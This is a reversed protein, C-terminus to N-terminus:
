VRGKGEEEFSVTKRTEKRGTSASRSRDRSTGRLPSRGRPYPSSTRARTASSTSRDRSRSRSRPDPESCDRAQHSGRGCNFCADHEQCWRSWEPTGKRPRRTESSPRRRGRRPAGIIAFVSNRTTDSRRAQNRVREKAEEIEAQRDARRIYENLDLDDWEPHEALALQIKHNLGTRFHEKVEQTSKEPVIRAALYILASIYEM